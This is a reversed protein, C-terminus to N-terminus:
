FSQTQASSRKFTIMTKHFRMEMAECFFTYFAFINKPFNAEFYNNVFIRLSIQRHSFEYFCFQVFKQDVNETHIVLKIKIYTYYFLSPSSFFRHALVIIFIQLRRRENNKWNLRFLISPKLLSYSNNFQHLNWNKKRM